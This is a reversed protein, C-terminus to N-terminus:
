WPGRTLRTRLDTLFLGLLNHGARLCEPHKGGRNGCTCDGWTNDHWTNGEVLIADGTDALVDALGPYRFKQELVWRMATYRHAVDWYPRLTAKRGREKAIRPTPAAAIWRREDPNGTKFVNFAHEATACVLPEAGPIDIVSPAFNSLGAWRGTFSSLVAPEARGAHLATM